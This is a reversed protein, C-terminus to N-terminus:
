GTEYTEIDLDLQKDNVGFMPVYNSAKPVQM